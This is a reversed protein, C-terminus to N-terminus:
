QQPHCIPRPDSKPGAVILAVVGAINRNEPLCVLLLIRPAAASMPPSSLFLASNLSYPPFSNWGLEQSIVVQTWFYM